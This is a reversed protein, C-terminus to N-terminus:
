RKLNGALAQEKRRIKTICYAIIGVSIIFLVILINYNLLLDFNESLAFMLPQLPFTLISYWIPIADFNVVPLFLITIFILLALLAVIGFLGMLSSQLRFDTM